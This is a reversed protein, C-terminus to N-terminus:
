AVRVTEERRPIMVDEIGEARLTRALAEAQELEGHVLRVRPRDGILPRFFNALDRQDAHGSFGNLDVVDAWKNWRRGRFHVAPGRELLKHGLSGPAQYSVLVVSNRPDDLNNELHNLIRGAECMGGSAVLVCAERRRSLERSDECRRVYRVAVAQELTSHGSQALHEPYMDHIEAIDAALPSDVYIPVHPLKGEAMWQRVYHVVLQARGLSFAPILVKGGREVTTRVVDQLKAALEHPSQHSRGGYTSECIILDASPLPAPPRLFKLAPRGL